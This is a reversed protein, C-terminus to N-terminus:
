HYYSAKAWLENAKSPVHPVLALNNLRLIERYNVM